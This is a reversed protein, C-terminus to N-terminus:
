QGGASLGGDPKGDNNGAAYVVGAANGGGYKKHQGCGPPEAAAYVRVPIGCFNWVSYCNQNHNTEYIM